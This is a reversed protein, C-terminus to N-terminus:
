KWQVYVESTDTTGVAKTLNLETHWPPLPAVQELFLLSLLAMRRWYVEEAEKLCKVEYQKFYSSLFAPFCLKNLHLSKKSVRM